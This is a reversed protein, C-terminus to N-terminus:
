LFIHYCLDWRKQGTIVKTFFDALNTEGDEKGIQLIDAAVAESVSHHNIVNHKKPLVSETIIINNMFGPNDCFFYVPGESIVSVMQLKYRLEVILDKCIRLAVWERGFMEAKFTNHKKIFWIIRTSQIFMIVGTRLHRTVVNGEHNADIFLFISVYRGCPDTMKTPLEEELESYFETWDANDDFM